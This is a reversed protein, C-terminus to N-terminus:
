PIVYSKWSHGDFRSVGKDFSGFWANGNSDLTIACIKNDVLGDATTFNTWIKGDYRYVGQEQDPEWRSGCPYELFSARSFAFWATGDEAVAISTVSPVFDEAAWPPTIKHLTHGAYRFLHDMTAIWIVGDPAVTIADIYEYSFDIARNWSQGNYFGISSHFAYGGFPENYAGLISGNPSGLVWTFGGGVENIWKTGSFRGFYYEQGNDAPYPMKKLDAWIEGSGRTTLSIVYNGPLGSEANLSQWGADKFIGIGNAFTGVWIADDPAQVLAVVNTFESHVGTAYVTSKGTDLDWHVVGGPGGTWLDGSLDILMTRIQNAAPWHDVVTWAPSQPTITIPSIFTSTSVPTNTVTVNVSPQIATNTVSPIQTQQNHAVCASPSILMMMIPLFYNKINM